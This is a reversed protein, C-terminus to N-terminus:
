YRYKLLAAMDALSSLVPSYLIHGSLEEKTIFVDFHFVVEKPCPGIPM